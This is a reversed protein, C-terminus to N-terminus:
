NIISFVNSMKQPAFTRDEGELPNKSKFDFCYKEFWNLGEEESVVGVVGGRDVREVKM